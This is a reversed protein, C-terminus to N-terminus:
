FMKAVDMNCNSLCPVPHYKVMVFRIIDPGLFDCNYALFALIFSISEVFLFLNTILDRHSIYM